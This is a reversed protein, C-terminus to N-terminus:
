QDQAILIALDEHVVPIPDQPVLEDRAILDLEVVAPNLLQGEGLLGAAQQGAADVALELQARKCTLRHLWAGEGRGRVAFCPM